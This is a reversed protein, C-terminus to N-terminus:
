FISFDDFSKTKALFERVRKIQDDSFVSGKVPYQVATLDLWSTEPLLSVDEAAEEDEEPRARDSATASEHFQMTRSDRAAAAAAAANSSISM